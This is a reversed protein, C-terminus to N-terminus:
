RQDCLGRWREVEKEYHNVRDQRVVGWFQPDIKATELAEEAAKLM